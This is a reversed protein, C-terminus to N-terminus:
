LDQGCGSRTPERDLTIEVTHPWREGGADVCGIYRRVAIHLAHRENHTTYVEGSWRPYRPETLPFEEHRAGADLSLLVRHDRTFVMVFHPGAARYVHETQGRPTACAAALVLVIGALRRM